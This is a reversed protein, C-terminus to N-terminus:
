VAAAEVVPSLAACARTVRACAEELRADPIAYAIRIYPSAGFAGGHVTGVHAADLLYEAFDLDNGIVKGAPTRRGIMGAVCAYVYFAGQPEVQLSFGPTEAVMKLVRARRAVLAKDWDAMFGTEGTLAAVAAAQSISSPNSTSQSQLMDMAAILWRPGGAFGLRWGTMSHSKSLGNITLTRDKAAPTVQAFSRFPVGFRRHEYIDDVLVLARHHKLVAEALAALEAATYVAGTPNSPSNLIIWRTRPTLAAALRAPTVKWGQAETTPVIVPTGEAIAVIDPYSVWYPAPIVVEDGPALTALMANFILQKAGAGAIVETPAYDLGNDRAFKAIIAAKLAATGGVATYKTEGNSIAAIGAANIHAPTDFDLEGEGLNIVDHGAAALSRLKDSIAATPSPRVHSLRPSLSALTM